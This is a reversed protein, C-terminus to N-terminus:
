TTTTTATVQPALDAGVVVLVDDGTTGQVPVSTTLPAVAAPKLGLSSAISQAASQQGAAYYVTTTPVKSTADVSPLTQFGLAGVKQAFFGAANNTNTGNAVLVKVASKDVPATTTTSSSATTTSTTTTVGSVGLDAPARSGINLLVVGVVVGVALLVFAKALSVRDGGGPLDDPAGVQPL